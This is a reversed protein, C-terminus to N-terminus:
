VLVTANQKEGGALAGRETTVWFEQDLTKPVYGIKMDATQSSLALQGGCGALVLVLTSLAVVASRKSM